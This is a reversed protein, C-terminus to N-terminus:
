GLKMNDIGVVRDYIYYLLMVCVLLITGMAAALGWNLSSRMHFAIQNSIMQGSAGGVLAPTIYYGVSLVFVLLGGAGIGPISQPWFIKFFTRFPTAGLSQSARLQSLPITKMVSYMPLVMFPLLIQTMAVLTGNLNYIMQIRGEESIIGIWVMIDNLVGQTQLLVIWSTTRVLLSTWFPLLVMIILLNSIRPPTTSILYAIPYGLILTLLMILASIWLTRIFLTVYIRKEEPKSVINGELDYGKDIANLFYASTIPDSVQKITQWTVLNGWKPEAEIMQEKYPAGTIHKLKRKSKVIMSRAGALSYNVHTAIKGIDGREINTQLEHFLIEFTAEGPVEKGEWQELDAVLIPMLDTMRPNDVSRFLMSGIPIIFTFIIFALLPAVLLFATIKKKKEAKALQEKLPLGDIMIMEPENEAITNM